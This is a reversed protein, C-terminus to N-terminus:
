AKPAPFVREGLFDVGKTSCAYLDMIASRLESGFLRSVVLGGLESNFKYASGYKPLVIEGTSLDIREGSIHKPLAGFSLAKGVGPSVLRVLFDGNPLLSVVNDSPKEARAPTTGEPKPKNKSGKPRGPGRKVPMDSTVPAAPPTPAPTGALLAEGESATIKGSAVLSLVLSMTSM